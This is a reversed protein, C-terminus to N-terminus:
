LRRPLAQGVVLGWGVLGWANNPSPSTLSRSSGWVQLRYRLLGLVLEGKPMERGSGGRSRLGSHGDLGPLIFGSPCLARLVRPWAGCLPRGLHGRGGFELGSLVCGRCACAAMGGYGRWIAEDGSCVYVQGVVVRCTGLSCTGSLRGVVLLRSFPGFCRILLDGCFSAVDLVRM